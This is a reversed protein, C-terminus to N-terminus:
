CGCEGYFTKVIMKGKKDKISITGTQIQIEDGTEKGKSIRIVLEYDGGIAKVETTLSDITIFKTQKFKIMARNISLFSTEAFDNVYIYKGSKFENSDNSFYCSCGDIESPFESFSDISLESGTQLSQENSKINTSVQACGFQITFLVLNRAIKSLHKNM